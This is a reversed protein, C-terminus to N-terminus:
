DDYDFIEFVIEQFHAWKLALLQQHLQFIISLFSDNSSVLMFEALCLSAATRLPADPYKSPNSNIAVVLPALLSLLSNGGTVIENECLQLL